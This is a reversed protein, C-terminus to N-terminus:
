TLRNIALFKFQLRGLISTPTGDMRSYCETLIRPTKSGSGGYAKKVLRKPSHVISEKNIKVENLICMLQSVMAVGTVM